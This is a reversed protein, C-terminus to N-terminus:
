ATYRGRVEWLYLIALIFLAVSLMAEYRSMVVLGKTLKMEVETGRPKSMDESTEKIVGPEMRKRLKMRRAEEDATAKLGDPVAMVRGITGGGAATLPPLADSARTRWVGGGAFGLQNVAELHRTAKGRGPGLHTYRHDPGSWTDIEDETEAHLSGKPIREAAAKSLGAPVQFRPPLKITYPALPDHRDPRPM